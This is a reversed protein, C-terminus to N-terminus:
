NSSNKKMLLTYSSKLPFYKINIGYNKKKEGREKEKRNWEMIEAKRGVREMGLGIGM